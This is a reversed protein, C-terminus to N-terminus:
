KTSAGVTKNTTIENKAYMVALSTRPFFFPFGFESVL